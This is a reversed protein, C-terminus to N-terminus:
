GLIELNDILRVKGLFGAALLVKKQKGDQCPELTKQDALCVYEMKWGTQTLRALADQELQRYFNSAVPQNATVVRDAVAKLTQFLEAAQKREDPKLFQNRSSLALGDNERVTECPFVAVSLNLQRVMEAIVTQQQYDKKGMFVSDAGSIMLLKLVITAVGRFHNPRFRGELLDQHRAPLVWFSPPEPFLETQSPTFVYDVGAKELKELDQEVTRPYHEYDAPDNFQTPNIFISVISIEANKQAEAILHMHGLHLNGMTPILGLSTSRFKRRLTKCDEISSLVQM